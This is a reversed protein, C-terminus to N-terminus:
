LMPEGKSDRALSLSPEALRFLLSSMMDRALFRLVPPVSDGSGCEMDRLTESSSLTLMSRSGALATPCSSISDAGAVAVSVAVLYWQRAALADSMMPQRWPM